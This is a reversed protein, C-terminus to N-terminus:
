FRFDRQGEAILHLQKTVIDRVKDSKIQALQEHILKDGV